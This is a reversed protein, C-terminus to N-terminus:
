HSILVNGAQSKISVLVLASVIIGFVRISSTLKIRMTVLLRTHLGRASPGFRFIGYCNKALMLKLVYIAEEVSSYDFLSFCKASFTDLTTKKPSPDNEKM